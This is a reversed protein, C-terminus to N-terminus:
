RRRGFSQLLAVLDVMEEPRFEPWPAKGGGPTPPTVVAHNWLAAMVSAPSELGRARTLDSAPKGREGSVAHCNLCGKSSALVWGNRVNGPEAFYRLAYLYAVLDAMEEPRLQPTTIGRGKMATLMGPAKNWMAAAFELLSRRVGREALDPGVRGGQGGVSHCEICRKSAFLQRGEAARGPLVYAPGEALAGTAPALFAILDRLEAGTFSPREISRAQMAAMMAPGHNWLATAVFIPSGFQRLHDLNPGVVGGTGEVQHCVVCRKASFLKRGAEANGPPDFYNLTYLFAILDAAEQADLQPRAIGLQGMRAAMQPLHNWMATTLDYFSRPRAIRGLDPGVKGGAGNVAHCKVCGKAGFVRAGALPDQAPGFVPQAVAPGATCVILAAGLLAWRVSPTMMTAVFRGAAM